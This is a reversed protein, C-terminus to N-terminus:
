SFIYRLRKSIRRLNQNIRCKIKEQLIKNYITEKVMNMIIDNNLDINITSKLTFYKSIILHNNM